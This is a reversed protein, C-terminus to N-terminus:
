GKPAKSARAPEKHCLVAPSAVVRFLGRCPPPGTQNLHLLVTTLKGRCAPDVGPSTPVRQSLLKGGVEVVHSGGAQGHGDHLDDDDTQAATKSHLELSTTSLIYLM